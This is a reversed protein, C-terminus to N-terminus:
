RQSKTKIQDAPQDLPMEITFRSGQGLESDLTVRGHHAKAIVKVIALGLGAGESRGSSGQGRAFRDFIRERDEASVGAGEDRVWFRVREEDVSSGLAIEDGEETHDAANQILQMIAQTLRQRDGVIWGQGSEDITWRRKALARMKRNLEETLAAVDVTQLALFDPRDAVTLVLLDDVMRAMRELEDMLLAVTRAREEPDDDLVDLHGTVITIPTRLEHGADNIFERQANFAHELRDLMANFTHALRAIEDTGEVEIRQSLDTDSISRATHTVAEVPVLARRAIRAALVAGIFMVILGVGLAAVTVQDVEEDEVARFIAVVFNADLNPDAFAPVGVFDVPGAPTEVTGRTPESLGSWLAVIEPDLDLRYSSALERSRSAPEGDIFTVSVEGREPIDSQLFEDFVRRAREESSEGPLHQDREIFVRLEQVEQDLSGQIREQVREFVIARVLVVSAVTAMALLAVYRLLLRGRLGSLPLRARLTRRLNM